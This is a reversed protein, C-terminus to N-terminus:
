NKLKMKKSELSEAKPWQKVHLSVLAKSGGLDIAEKNLYKSLISVLM